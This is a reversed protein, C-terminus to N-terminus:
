RCLWLRWKRASSANVDLWAVDLVGGISSSSSGLV